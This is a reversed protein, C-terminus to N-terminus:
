ATQENEQQIKTLKKGRKGKKKIATVNILLLGFESQSFFSFVYM